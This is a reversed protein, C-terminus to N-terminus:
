PRCLALVPIAQSLVAPTIFDTSVSYLVSATSPAAARFSQRIGASEALMISAALPFVVVATSTAVTQEADRSLWVVEHQTRCWVAEVIRSARDHAGFCNAVDADDICCLTEPSMLSALMTFLQAAIIADAGAEGTVWGDIGRLGAYQDPATSVAVLHVLSRYTRRLDDILRQWSGAMGNSSSPLAIVVATWDSAALLASAPTVSKNWQASLDCAGPFFRQVLTRLFRRDRPDPLSSVLSTSQVDPPSDVNDDFGIARLRAIATVVDIERGSILPELPTSQMSLSRAM